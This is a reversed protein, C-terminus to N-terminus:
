QAGLLQELAEAAAKRTNYVTRETTGLQQAIEKVPYEQLIMQVIRRRREPFPELLQAVLETLTAADEPSPEREVPDVGEPLPRERAVDRRQRDWYKARNRIKNLTIKALVPWLSGEREVEIQDQRGRWFFSRLVSQVIDSSGELRKLRGSMERRALRILRTYYRDFLKQAAGEDGARYASLLAQDPTENQVTM